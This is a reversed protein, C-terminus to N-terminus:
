NLAHSRALSRISTWGLRPRASGPPRSWPHVAVSSRISFAVGRIIWAKMSRKGSTRQSLCAPPSWSGAFPRVSAAPSGDTHTTSPSLVVGRAIQSRPWSSWRCCGLTSYRCPPRPGPWITPSDGTRSCLQPRRALSRGWGGVPALSLPISSNGSSTPRCFLHWSRVRSSGTATLLSSPPYIGLHDAPESVRPIDPGGVSSSNRTRQGLQTLRVLSRGRPLSPPASGRERLNNEPVLRPPQPSCAGQPLSAGAEQESHSPPTLRKVRQSSSRCCM